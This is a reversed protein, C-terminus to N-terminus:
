KRRDILRKLSPKMALIATFPKILTPFHKVLHSNDTCYKMKRDAANICTNKLMLTFKVYIIFIEVLDFDM